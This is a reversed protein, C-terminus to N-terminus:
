GQYFGHNDQLWCYTLTLGQNINFAPEFGLVEKARSNDIFLRRGTAPSDQFLIPSGGGTIKIVQDALQLMSVCEDGGINFICGIAKPQILSLVVAESFDDVYTYTRSDSGDGYITLPEGRLAQLLFKMPVSIRSNRPGYIDAARLIVARLGNSRALTTCFNEGALKVAGHILVPELPHNEDILVHKGNGYVAISSVYIFLADRELAAKILNLLGTLIETVARPEISRQRLAMPFALHIITDIGKSSKLVADEYAINCKILEIQKLVAYLNTERGSSFIDLARVKAGEVLLKECLHSGLFGAGGTILVNRGTLRM